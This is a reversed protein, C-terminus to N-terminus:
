QQNLLSFSQSAIQLAVTNQSKITIAGAIYANGCQNASKALSRLYGHDGIRRRALYLLLLLVSNPAYHIIGRAFFGFGKPNLYFKFDKENFDLTASFRKRGSAGRYDVLQPLNPLNTELLQSLDEPVQSLLSSLSHAGGGPDGGCSLNFIQRVALSCLILLEAFKQEEGSANIELFISAEDQQYFDIELRVGFDMVKEKLQKGIEELRLRAEPNGQDAAM